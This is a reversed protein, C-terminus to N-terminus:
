AVSSRRILLFWKKTWFVAVHPSFTVTSCPWSYRSFDVAQFLTVLQILHWVPQWYKNKHNILVEIRLSNSPLTIQVCSWVLIVVYWVLWWNRRHTPNFLESTQWSVSMNKGWDQLHIKPIHTLGSICWQM